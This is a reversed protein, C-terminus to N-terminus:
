IFAYKITGSTPRSKNCAEYLRLGGSDPRGSICDANKKMEGWVASGPVALLKELRANWWSKVRDLIGGTM